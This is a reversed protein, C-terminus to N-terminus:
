SDIKSTVGVSSWRIEEVTVVEVVVEVVDVEV